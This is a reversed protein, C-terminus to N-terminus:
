EDELTSFNNSKTEVKMVKNRYLLLDKAIYAIVKRKEDYVPKWAESEFTPLKSQEM